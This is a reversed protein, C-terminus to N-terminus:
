VDEYFLADDDFEAGGDALMQELTTRITEKIQTENVTSM